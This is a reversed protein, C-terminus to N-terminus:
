AYYTGVGPYGGFPLETNEGFRAECSSQRKSCADESANSVPNNNLDFYDTGTYGCEASRYVWQCRGICQRKPARVGALDFASALEFEVINRNEVSKRDVYYIELPFTATPDPTGYPNGISEIGVFVDGSQTTLNDGSQTVIFETESPFNIDDIYRALTRIRTVKAGELGNPLTSVLATITNFVNSARLTPRPLSGQGSYAFGDAEIPLLTYTQGGFTIGNNGGVEPGSFYYTQDVGHQAANLELQFLEIVASPNISQLHSTLESSSETNTYGENWYGTVVYAM